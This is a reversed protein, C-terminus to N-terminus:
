SFINNAKHITLAFPIFVTLKNPISLSFIFFSLTVSIYCFNCYPIYLSSLYILSIIVFFITNLKSSLKNAKCSVPLKKKDLFVCLSTLISAVPFFFASDLLLPTCIFSIKNSPFLFIKVISKKVRVLQSTPCSPVKVQFANLFLFAAIFTLSFNLVNLIPNVFSSYEPIAFIYTPQQLNKCIDNITVKKM